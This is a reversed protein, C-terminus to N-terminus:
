LQLVFRTDSLETEDPTAYGLESRSFTRNHVESMHIELRIDVGHSMRQSGSALPIEAECIPCFSIKSM